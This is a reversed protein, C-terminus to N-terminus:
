DDGERIVRNLAYILAMVCDEGLDPYASSYGERTREFELTRLERAMEPTRGPDVVIKARQRLWDWSYARGRGRGWSKVAGVADWGDERMERIRDPEASDCIVEQHRRHELPRLFDALRAHREVREELVVVTDTERDYACRIYAMPHEYGFDLGQYTKGGDIVSWDAEDLEREEVNSFLEGGTGTVEGLYNNRYYEPKHERFWEARSFFQPGLWEEPVNKFSFDFIRVSPDGAVSACWENMFNSRSPPPNFVKMRLQVAGEHGNSRLFTDAASDMQENGAMEDAEEFILLKVYGREPTFSKLQAANDFGFFYCSCGTPRYTCRMPSKTVQWLEPDLVKCFQAFVTERLDTAYRRGYVVNANPDQRMCEQALEAAFTSKAGGRGGRFVVDRVEPHRGEWCEHLLRYAPLCDTTLDLPDMRYPLEEGKSADRQALEDLYRAARVNGKAAANIQGAIVQAAATVDEGLDPFMAGVNQGGKTGRMDQSLMLGALRAMDRKARRAKGSARGANAASERREAATQDRMPRLLNQDNM